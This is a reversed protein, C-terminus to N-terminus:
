IGKVKYIWNNYIERIDNDFTTNTYDRKYLEIFKNYGYNEIIFGVFNGGLTYVREAGYKNDNKWSFLEEISNPLIAAIRHLSLNENQKAEYIAIGESLIPADINPNIKYAVVHTLEHIAVKLIGDYTHGSKGPNLPSVIRIIDGRATGVVWDDVNGIWWFLNGNVRIANHLSDLDSYIKVDIPENLQQKLHTTVAGYNDELYRQIPPIAQEDTLNYSIKFHESQVQTDFRNTIINAIWKSLVLGGFLLIVLFCFIILFKKM